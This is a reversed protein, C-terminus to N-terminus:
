KNHQRKKEDDDEEGTERAEQIGAEKIEGVDLLLKRGATRDEDFFCTFVFPPLLNAEREVSHSMTKDEGSVEEDFAWRFLEHWATEISQLILSCRRQMTLYDFPLKPEEKGIADQLLTLLQVPSLKRSM